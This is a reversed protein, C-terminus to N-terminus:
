LGFPMTGPATLQLPWDGLVKKLKRKEESKSTKDLVQRLVDLQQAVGRVTRDLAALQLKIELEM